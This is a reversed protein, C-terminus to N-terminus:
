YSGVLRNGGRTTLRVEHDIKQALERIGSPGGYVPGHIHIHTESAGRLPTDTLHPNHLAAPTTAAVAFGPPNVGMNGALAAALTTGANPVILRAHALMPGIWNDVFHPGWERIHHLPGIKPPESMALAGSITGTMGGVAKSLSAIKSWIGAGYQAVMHQGWEYSNLNTLPTKVATAVGQGAAGAAGTGSAVGATYNYIQEVGTANWGQVAGLKQLAELGVGDAALAAIVSAEDMGAAYLQDVVQGIRKAEASGISVASLSRLAEIGVNQAAEKAGPIASTIGERFTTIWDKGMVFAVQKEPTLGHELVYKLEDMGSVVATSADAIGRGVGESIGKGVEYAAKLAELAGFGGSSTIGGAFGKAVEGGLDKGLNAFHERARATESDDDILGEAFLGAAESGAAKVDERMFFFQGNKDIGMVNSLSRAADHIGDGITDVITGYALGKTEDGIAGFLSRGIDHGAQNIPGKAEEAILALGIVGATKAALAFAGGAASGAAGAAGLVKPSGGVKLWASQLFGGLADAVAAAAAYIAGGIAGAAAIARGIFAVGHSRAAVSQWAEKLYDSLLDVGAAAAAYIGGAVAGAAAIVVKAAGKTAGWAVSLADGIANGVKVAGAYIVGAAAGAAEIVKHGVSKVANWGTSIAGSIADVVKMAAGYAASAAGAAAQIAAKGVNKVAGWAGSLSGGIADRLKKGLDTSLFSGAATGFSALGTVAPGFDQGLDRIGAGLKDFALKIKQSDTLMDDSAKGVAGAADETSVQFEDLSTMGPRIANALGVGAKSGFIKIAEQARLTPDEIAGIQAILDDLSQGPKLTKVAKNLALPAKAADLGAAEFLNLLGIADDTDGNMAKLAPAMAAIADVAAPGADTGYKQNSAILQDMIGVAASAPAGWADLAADFGDVAGAADQGTVKSFQLFQNTMDAGAQGTVGFQQAVQTGAAAIDEFSKGVTGSTGALGNMDKTFAAAEERSAGTAAMFEGQAAQAELAGKTLAGFGLAGAAGVIGMAAQTKGGLGGMTKQADGIGKQFESADLGLVGVLKFLPGAM